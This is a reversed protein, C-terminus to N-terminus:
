ACQAVSATLCCTAIRWSNFLAYAGSCHNDPTPSTLTLSAVAKANTRSNSAAHPKGPVYGGVKRSRSLINSSLHRLGSSHNETDCVAHYENSDPDEMLITDVRDPRLRPSMDRDGNWLGDYDHCCGGFRLYSLTRMIKRRIEGNLARLRPPKNPVACLPAFYSEDEGIYIQVSLSSPIKVVLPRPYKQLVVDSPPTSL